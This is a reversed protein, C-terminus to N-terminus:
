TVIQLTYTTGNIVVEVANSLDPTLFSGAIVRGALISKTVGADRYQINNADRWLQGNSPSTPAVGQTLQIQPFSTTGAALHLFASAVLNAGLYSNGEVIFKSKINNYGQATVLGLNGGEVYYVATNGTVLSAVGNGIYYNGIGSGAGYNLYSGSADSLSVFSNNGGNASLTSTGGSSVDLRFYNSANYSVMLQNLNTDVVHLKSTPVTIGIGLNGALYNQATGNMYLNWRNTGVGIRGYYGYVITAASIETGTDFYRLNTITNGANVGPTGSLM